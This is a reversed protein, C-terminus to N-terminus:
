ARGRLVPRSGPRRKRYAAELREADDAAKLIRNAVQRAVKPSVPGIASWNVAASRHKELGDAQEGCREPRYLDVYAMNRSRQTKM